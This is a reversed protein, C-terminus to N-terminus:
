GRKCPMSKTGTSATNIAARRLMDFRNTFEANNWVNIIFVPVQYRVPKSSPSIRVEQQWNQCESTSIKTQDKIECIKM